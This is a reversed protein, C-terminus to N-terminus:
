QESLSSDMHRARMTLFGLHQGLALFVLGFWASRFFYIFYVFFLILVFTFFFLCLLPKIKIAYRLMAYCLMTYCLM